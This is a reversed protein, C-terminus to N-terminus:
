QGRRTRTIVVPVCINVPCCDGEAVIIPCCGGTPCSSNSAIFTYNGGSTVTVSPNTENPLPSGNRFWQINTLGQPISLVIAQSPCLLIPVSVCTRGFDDETEVGNDPSSDVDGQDMKSVEATYYQVGTTVVQFTLNIVVSDGVAINGITWTGPVYTGTGSSSGFIFGSPVLDKVEVGTLAVQGENRAVLRLTVNDSLQPLQNNVSVQLAIDANRTIIIPTPVENDGPNGNNDPDVNPGTTSKDRVILGNASGQGWATNVYTVNNSSTGPNVRVAFSLLISDGPVLSASGALLNTQSGTGSFSPNVVTPPAASVATAISFAAPSPFTNSLTDFVQFNSLTVDGTNVAKIRFAITFTGDNNNVVGTVLKSVGIQPNQRCDADQGKKDIFQELPVVNGGSVQGSRSFFSGRVNLSAANDAAQVFPDNPTLIAVPGFCDNGEFTFLAVSDGVVFAGLDTENPSKGIAYYRATSDYTESAFAPEAIPDGLKRPDKAWTGRIDTINQIIFSKPVKLSVQATASFENANSNIVNPTSYDPHVWVTYKQTGSDYTLKYKVTNSSLTQAYSARSAVILALIVLLLYTSYRKMTKSFTNRFVTTFVCM